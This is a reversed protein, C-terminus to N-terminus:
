GYLNNADLYMIYSSPKTSDYDRIYKNNDKAYRKCIYSVSGRIGREIFQFKVIHSILEQKVGTKELM